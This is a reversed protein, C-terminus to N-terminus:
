VDNVTPSIMSEFVLCASFLHDVLRLLQCDIHTLHKPRCKRQRLRDGLQSLKRHESTCFLSVRILAGDHQRPTKSIRKGTPAFM